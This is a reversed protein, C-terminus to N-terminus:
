NERRAKNIARLLVPEFWDGRHSNVGFAICGEGLPGQEFVATRVEDSVFEGKRDMDTFVVGVYHEGGTSFTVVHFPSGSIGNRHCAVEKITVTGLQPDKLKFPKM